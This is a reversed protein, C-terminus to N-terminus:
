EIDYGSKVVREEEWTCDSNSPDFAAISAWIVVWDHREKAYGSPASLSEM